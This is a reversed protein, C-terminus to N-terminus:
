QSIMTGYAWALPSPQAPFACAPYPIGRGQKPNWLQLPFSPLSLSLHLNGPFKASVLTWLTHCTSFHQPNPTVHLLLTSLHFVKILFSFVETGSNTLWFVKPSHSLSRQVETKGDTFYPHVSVQPKFFNWYLNLLDKCYFILSRCRFQTHVPSLAPLSLLPL